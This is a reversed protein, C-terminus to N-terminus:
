VAARVASAVLDLARESAALGKIGVFGHTMGSFREVHVPVDAAELRSAYAEAEDRLPDCEATIILARCVGRVDRALLPSARWDDPDAGYQQRSWVVEERPLGYEGGGFEKWSESRMHLDTAPYILVQLALQPSGVDRAALAAVMSLTAGASDGGIAVGGRGVGLEALHSCAWAIVHQVDDVASPFPHEPALRYESNLVAAGSRNALRRCMADHSEISGAVWAGGHFFV